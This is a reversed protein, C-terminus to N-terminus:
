LSQACIMADGPEAQMQVAQVSIVRFKCGTPVMEERANLITCDLRKASSLSLVCRSIIQFILDDVVPPINTRMNERVRAFIPKM